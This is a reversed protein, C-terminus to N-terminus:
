REAYHSQEVTQSLFGIGRLGKEDVEGFVGLFSKELMRGLLFASEGARGIRGAWCICIM